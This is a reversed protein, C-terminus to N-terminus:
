YHKKSAETTTIDKGSDGVSEIGLQADQKNTQKFEFGKIGGSGGWIKSM